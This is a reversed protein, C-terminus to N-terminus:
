AQETKETYTYEYELEADFQYEGDHIVPISVDKLVIPHLVGSIMEYAETTDILDTLWPMLEAALYGTNVKVVDERTTKWTLKEPLTNGDTEAVEPKISSDQQGLGKCTLIELLGFPNRIYLVRTAPYYNSDIKYHYERSVTANVKAYVSYHELTKDPFNEAMYTAIDLQVPGVPFYVIGYAPVASVSLVSGRDVVTGDTFYLKNYLKVLSPDAHFLQMFNLIEAQNPLIQKTVLYPWWSLASLTTTLYAKLSAYTAYFSKRRSSPIYADILHYTATEVDYNNVPPDGVWEIFTFTVTLPITSYLEAANGTKGIESILGQLYDSLEFVAKKDADAQMMDGDGATVGAAIRLPLATASGQLTFIIPMKSMILLPPSTLTSIAM